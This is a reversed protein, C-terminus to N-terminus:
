YAFPINERDGLNKKKRVPEAEPFRKWVESSWM